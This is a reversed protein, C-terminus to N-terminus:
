FIPMDFRFSAISPLRQGQRCDLRKRIFLLPTPLISRRKTKYKFPLPYGSRRYTRYPKGTGKPILQSPALLSVASWCTSTTGQQAPVRLLSLSRSPVQVM